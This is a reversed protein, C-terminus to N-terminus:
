FGMVTVGFRRAFYPWMNHDAVVKAGLHSSMLALWGGLAAAEGQSQLFDTLKGHEFLLALKQM